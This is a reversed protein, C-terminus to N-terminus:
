FDKLNCLKLSHPFFVIEKAQLYLAYMLELCTIAVTMSYPSNLHSVISSFAYTLTMKKKKKVQIYSILDFNSVTHLFFDHGPSSLGLGTPGLVLSDLTIM